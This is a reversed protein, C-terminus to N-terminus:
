GRDGEPFVSNQMVSCIHKHDSGKHVSDSLIYNWFNHVDWANSSAEVM